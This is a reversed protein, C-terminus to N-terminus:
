YRRWGSGRELPPPYDPMDRLQVASEGELELRRFTLANGASIVTVSYGRRLYERIVVLSRTAHGLGLSSVAFLARPVHRTLSHIKLM